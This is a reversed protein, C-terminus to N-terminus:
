PRRPVVARRAGPGRAGGAAGAAPNADPLGEDVADALILHLTGCWTKIGSGAYGVEREHKERTKVDTSLIERLPTREFAPLLHEEIHRRHNQTTSAALDQAAYWGRVCDGFTASGATPTRRAPPPPGVARSGRALATPGDQPDAPASAPELGTTEALGCWVRLGDACTLARRTPRKRTQPSTKRDRSLSSCCYTAVGSRPIPRGSSTVTPRRVPRGSLGAPAVFRTSGHPSVPRVPLPAAARRGM